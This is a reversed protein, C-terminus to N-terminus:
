LLLTLLRLLPLIVGTLTHLLVTDGAFELRGVYEEFGEPHILYTIYMSNVCHQLVDFNIQRLSLLPKKKINISTHGYRQRLKIKFYFKITFTTLLM